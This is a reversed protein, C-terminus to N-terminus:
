RLEWRHEDLVMGPLDENNFFGFRHKGTEIGKKNLMKIIKLYGYDHFGSKEFSRAMAQIMEYSHTTAFIQLEPNNNLAEAIIEWLKDYLSYHLGMEIDDICILNANNVLMISVIALWRQLGYTLEAIRFGRKTNKFFVKPIPCRGGDFSIKSINNDFIKAYKLLIEQENSNFLNKLYIEAYYKSYEPNYLWVIKQPPPTQSELANMFTTKGVNNNGGILTVRALDKVNAEKFCKYNEIHINRIM